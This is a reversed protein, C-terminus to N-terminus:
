VRKKSAILKEIHHDSHEGISYDYSGVITSNVIDFM